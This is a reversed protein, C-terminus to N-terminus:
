NYQVLSERVRQIKKQMSRGNSHIIRVISCPATLSNVSFRGGTFASDGSSIVASKLATSTAGRSPWRASRAQPPLHEHISMLYYAKRRSEPLRREWRWALHM